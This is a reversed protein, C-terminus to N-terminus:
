VTVELPRHRSDTCPSLGGRFHRLTEHASMRSPFRWRSRAFRPTAAEVDLLAVEVKMVGSGVEDAVQYRKALAEHLNRHVVNTFRQEDADLL